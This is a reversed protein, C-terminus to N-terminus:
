KELKMGLSLNIVLTLIGKKCILALLSQFYKFLGFTQSKGAARVERTYSNEAKQFLSCYIGLSDNDTTIFHCLVQM